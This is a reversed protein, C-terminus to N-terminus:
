GSAAPAAIMLVRAAPDNRVALVYDVTDVGQDRLTECLMAHQESTSAVHRILTVLGKAYTTVRSMQTPPLTRGDLQARALIEVDFPLTSM